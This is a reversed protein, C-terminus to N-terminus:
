LTIEAVPRFGLMATGIAAFGIRLFSRRVPREKRQMLKM